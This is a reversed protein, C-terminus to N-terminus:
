PNEMISLTEAEYFATRGDKHKVRFLVSSENSEAEEFLALASELSFVTEGNVAELVVDRPLKAAAAAGDRRVFAIYVGHEVDYLRRLQDTLQQLGIGWEEIEFAADAEFAEPERDPLIRGPDLAQEELAAQWAKFSEDEEGFLEVFFVRLAKDRWVELRLRDGPRHIAVARQLENPEDVERGNISLVVDGSELGAQAAASGPSVERLHVGAIRDLGFRRALTADIPNITVGLYGRQVEGLSILDEAVREMLNVPVAFGYGEYSGTETAIATNIGILEGSINVLAGGSNGPNIAADTQIFDEIGFQDEIINVQRGLASVIGATVTSTLRFPNGVAIVWEGVAVEDSDGLMAAPLGDSTIAKIVALDTAPDTGIVRAEYQRKDYLTVIIEDAGEVVHNNTVIYGTESIIVGSGVSQRPQGFRPLWGRESGSSGLDVQIYVVAPTVLEAVQQFTESLSLANSLSNVTTDPARYIPESTRNGLEVREVVRQRDDEQFQQNMVFLMVLIGSLLGVLVLGIATLFSIRRSPQPTNASEPM